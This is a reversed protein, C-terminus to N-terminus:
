REPDVDNPVQYVGLATLIALVAQVATAQGIGFLEDGPALGLVAPGLIVAVLGIVAAVLKRYNRIQM